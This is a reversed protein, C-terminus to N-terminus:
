YLISLVLWFLTMMLTLYFVLDNTSIRGFIAVRILKQEGLKKEYLTLVRENNIKLAEEAERAQAVRYLHYMFSRKFILAFVLSTVVGFISIIRIAIERATPSISTTGWIVGLASVLIGTLTVYYQFRQWSHEDEHRHLESAMKWQELLLDEKNM